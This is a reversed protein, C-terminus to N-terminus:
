SRHLPLLVHFRSGRGLESEVSVSGGQAAVLRQVIALGLGSGGTERTRARDTRYFREFIRAAEEAAMGPGTDAVTLRLMQPAGVVAASLTVSGGAPTYRLANEVLNGLIQALRLPDAHLPPLAPGRLVQLTIGRQQAQMAASATAHDLAAYPDLAEPVLSLQGADALSLLRLDDILRGLLDIEAGLAALTRPEAPLLGDEMREVQLRLVSLPTRLEHAIDATMERRLAEQRQLEGAMSNFAGALEALELDTPVAIPEHTQGAAIRRAAVTLAGLPHSLRRAVLAAAILAGIMATLSGLLVIGVLARVFSRENTQRQEDNPIVAVGGVQEGRVLIPVTANRFRLPLPRAILEGTSDFLVQGASDVLVIRGAIQPSADLREGLREAADAWGRNTLYFEALPGRLREAVQRAQRTTEQVALQRYARFILGGALAGVLLVAVLAVLTHTITLRRYM